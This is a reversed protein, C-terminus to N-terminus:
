TVQWLNNKKAPNEHITKDLKEIAKLSLDGAPSSTYVHIPPTTDLAANSLYMTYHIYTVSM